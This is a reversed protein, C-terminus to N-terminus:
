GLVRTLTYILRAPITLGIQLDDRVSATDTIEGNFEDATAASATALGGAALGVTLVAVAALRRTTATVPSPM